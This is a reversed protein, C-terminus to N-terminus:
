GRREGVACRGPISPTIGIAQGVAVDGAVRGPSRAVDKGYIWAEGDAEVIRRNPKGLLALVESSTTVGKHVKAPVQELQRTSVTACGTVLFSITSAQLLRKRM